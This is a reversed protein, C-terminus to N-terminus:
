RETRVWAGSRSPAQTKWVSRRARRGNGVDVACLRAAAAPSTFTARIPGTAADYLAMTTDVADFVTLHRIATLTVHLEEPRLPRRHALDAPCEPSAFRDNALAGFNECGPLSLALALGTAIGLAMSWARLHSHAM